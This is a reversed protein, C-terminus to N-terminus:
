EDIKEINAKLDSAINTMNLTPLLIPSFGSQITLTGIYARIYPFMIAPANGLFYNMLQDERIDSFAFVAEAEVGILLDDEKTFVEVYLLLKFLNAQLYHRGEPKIMIKLKKNREHSFDFISKNIKFSNFSFGAKEGARM